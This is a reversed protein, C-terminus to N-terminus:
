MTNTGMLFLLQFIGKFLYYLSYSVVGFFVELGILSILLAVLLLVTTGSLSSNTAFGEKGLLIALLSIGLAILRLDM